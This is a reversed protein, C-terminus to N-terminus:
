SASGAARAAEVKRLKRRTKALKARLEREDGRLRALEPDLAAIHDDHKLWNLRVDLNTKGSKGYPEDDEGLANLWKATSVGACRGRKTEAYGDDSWRACCGEAGNELADHGHKPTVLTKM